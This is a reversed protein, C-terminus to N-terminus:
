RIVIIKKTASDTKSDLRFYYLGAPISTFDYNVNNKQNGQSHILRTSITQGQLNFLSLKIDTEQSTWFTITTKDICPNPSISCSIPLSNKSIGVPSNKTWITLAPDGLVNCDFHCWRQAGPEFEGPLGIWPATKIKSMTHAAGLETIASDANPNYLASIFERHLHGSPGETTGQDFWGYRSNFVGAVLWNSITTSLEAICDSNDFAGCICGHTYMLQYNHTIGDVQSFTENTINVNSLRMMYDWNSHGCHHIFSKGANIEELLNGLSWSYINGPSILTDYLRTIDNEASPIGHTFYGNDNHDNILLELYDQGWTMPDSYLYEGVFFPRDLEGAVPNGQYSVSKHVMHGLEEATSFSMRGVSIEPLLDAEDVPNTPTIAEGWKNNQNPNWNGDLGSYYIDGPITNDEYGTGSEVYCYLGRCPVGEVDGGLIVHEINNAQYEQIIYNRIKEQLDQGAMTADITETTAVQTIMGKNTYFGILDQFGSQFQSPTIILLQYDTKRSSKASYEQIMEPNQAFLRVRKMANESSTLNKLALQADSGPITHIHVTIKQYYSVKKQAPNYIVPTFTSLAFSYGNLFSTMLHGTQTSPYNKNQLYITEKKQFTGDIGQSVPRMNQQPFLIFDGPITVLNEGTVEISQAIEGPPLMLAIQHYPLMPEGILGSLLTNDFTVSQYSSKPEITYKSFTFVKEINGAFTSVALAFCFILLVNKKM